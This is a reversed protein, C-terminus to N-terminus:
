RGPQGECMAVRMVLGVLVGLLAALMVVSSMFIRRRCQVGLQRWRDFRGTVGAVVIMGLERESEGRTRIYREEHHRRAQNEWCVDYDLALRRQQEGGSGRSCPGRFSGSSLRSGWGEASM